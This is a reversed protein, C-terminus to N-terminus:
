GDAGGVMVPMDERLRVCEPWERPDGGKPSKLKYPEGRWRPDAGLQKVFVATQGCAQEIVAEAWAIDFPRAGPGSEGGVIIWDLWAVAEDEIGGAQLPFSLDLPGLAPEYSVFHLAAPTGLLAPIRELARTQDEVSVGLAVNKPVDNGWPYRALMYRRMREHRKTLVQFWHQPCQAMVSFVRDIERDPLAEHFLDSMSNVFILSPASWSLPKLLDGEGALRVRGNWVPKENVWRVLNRYKDQGIAELRATVRMAYCNTCGPSELSCGVTPNWTRGTWQIGTKRRSV